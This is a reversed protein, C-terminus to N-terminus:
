QAASRSRRAEGLAGKIRLLSGDLAAQGLWWQYDPSQHALGLRLDRLNEDRLTAFLKEIQALEAATMEKRATDTAVEAERRKMEGLALGRQTAALQETVYRPSHCAGCGATAQERAEQRSTKKLYHQPAPAKAEFAHCAACDPTRRRERGAEIRAIVGHKSLAYSREAAGAHCDICSKGALAPLTTLLLLWLAHRM